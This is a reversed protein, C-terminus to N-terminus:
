SVYIRRRIKRAFFYCLCLREAPAEYWEFERGEFMFPKKPPGPQTTKGSSILKLRDPNGTGMAIGAEILTNRNNESVDAIILAARRILDTIEKPADDGRQLREGQICRM